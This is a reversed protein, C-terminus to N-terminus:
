SQLVRMKVKWNGVAQQKTRTDILTVEDWGCGCSSGIVQRKWSACPGDEFVQTSLGYPLTGENRLLGQPPKNGLNLKAASIM